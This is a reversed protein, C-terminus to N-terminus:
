MLNRGQLERLARAFAEANEANTGDFRLAVKASEGRQKWTKIASLLQSAAGLLAVGAVGYSAVEDATILGFAGAAALAATMFSYLATRQENSM